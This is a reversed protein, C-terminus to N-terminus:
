ASGGDISQEALYVSSASGGDLEGDVAPITVDMNVTVGSINVPITVSETTTGPNSEKVITVYGQALAYVKGDLVYDILIFYKPRTLLAANSETLPIVLEGLAGTHTLGSGETLTLEDDDSEPKRFHVSFALDSSDYVVGDLTLLCELENHGNRYATWEINQGHHTNLETAM